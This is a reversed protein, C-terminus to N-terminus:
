EYWDPKHGIWGVLSEIVDNMSEFSNRKMLELEIDTLANVINRKHPWHGTTTKDRYAKLRYKMYELENLHSIKSKPSMTIYSVMRVFENNWVDCTKEDTDQLLSYTNCHITRGDWILLDGAEMQVLLQCYKDNNLIWHNLALKKFNTEISETAEKFVSHSRPIVVTGGSYVSQTQLTLVGQLVDFSPLEKYHQDVHFWQPRTKYENHKNYPRYIGIGDYSTLLDKYNNVNWLKIFIELVKPRTRLFWQLESQGIGKQYMVGTKKYGPFSENTWTSQDHKDWGINTQNIWKWLLDKSHIIEQNNIVNKFVVFGNQSLYQKANEIKNIDFRYPLNANLPYYSFGRSQQMNNSKFPPESFVAILENIQDVARSM